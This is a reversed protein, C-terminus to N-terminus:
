KQPSFPSESMLHLSVGSGVVYMSHTRKQTPFQSALASDYSTQRKLVFLSRM